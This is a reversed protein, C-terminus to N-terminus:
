GTAYLTNAAKGSQGSLAWSSQGKEGSGELSLVKLWDEFENVSNHSHHIACIIRLGSACCCCSIPQPVGQCASGSLLPLRVGALVGYETTQTFWVGVFLM